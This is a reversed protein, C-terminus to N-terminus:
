SGTTVLAGNDERKKKKEKCIIPVKSHIVIFNLKNLHKFGNGSSLQM